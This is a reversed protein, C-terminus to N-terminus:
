DRSSSTKTLAQWRTAIADTSWPPRRENKTLLGGFEITGTIHLSCDQRIHEVHTIKQQHQTETWFHSFRPATEPLQRQPM